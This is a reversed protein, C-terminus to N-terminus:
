EEKEYKFKGDVEIVERKKMITKGAKKYNNKGKLCSVCMTGERHQISKDGYACTECGKALNMVM